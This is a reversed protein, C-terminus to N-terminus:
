VDNTDTRDHNPVGSDESDLNIVEHPILHLGDSWNVLKHQSGGIVFVDGDKLGLDQLDITVQKKQELLEKLKAKHHKIHDNVLLLMQLRNSVKRKNM